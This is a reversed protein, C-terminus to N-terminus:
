EALQSLSQTSELSRGTMGGWDRERATAAATRRAENSAWASTARMLLAGRAAPTLGDTVMDAAGVVRESASPRAMTAVARTALAAGAFAAGTPGQASDSNKSATSFSETSRTVNSSAPRASTATSESPPRWRTSIRAESPGSIRAPRRLCLTWNATWGGVCSGKSPTPDITPLRTKGSKNRPPRKRRLRRPPPMPPMPPPPPPPGMPMSLECDLIWISGCVPTVKASTAPQSADLSSNVSTTSNRLNGSFYVLTPALVGRPTSRSPGGPVPLVSSARAHAPSAPTGKMEVDPESNTSINTPTPADRMRENNASAFFFAGHMMKMSSISAMPRWREPPPPKAVFSSRSCVSLWIRVSISPKPPLVPTMTRAAVFRPSTRSVARRRGPRKSRRTGTSAGSLFPRTAIRLTWERSLGSPASTSKSTTAARVVPKEPAAKCFRIFSAAIKATRASRSTMSAVCISSAM